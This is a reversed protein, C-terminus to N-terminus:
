VDETVAEALPLRVVVAKSWGPEPEVHISGGARSTLDVALGLGRAVYRGRLIATTLKRPSRDQVRIEVRELGTIPDEDVAVELGVEDGDLSAEIANRVLNGVVDAFDSRFMRVRLPAGPPVAIRVDPVAAGRVEGAADAYTEALLRESVPLVCLDAVARGLARYADRNLAVSIAALEQALRRGRGRRMAGELRRLRGAAALLPGLAPDRHRLNLRVGSAAGIRVLERVYGDLRALAGREGYLRDAAWRAPEPDGDELADVVAPLVSAHHKLVEHRIASLIRAVDRWAGPEHALLAGLSAGSRRRGVVVLPSLAVVVAVAGGGWTALRIRRELEADLELAAEFDAGSSRHEFFRHLTARARWWRWASADASARRWLADPDGLAAARDRLVRAEEARGDRAYLQALRGVVDGRDPELRLSEEYLEIARELEGRDARIRAELDLARVFRPADARVAALEALAHEAAVPDGKECWAEARHFGLWAAEPVAEPRESSPPAALPPNGRVAGDLAVRAAVGHPGEPDLALVREWAAVSRPWDGIRREALAARAWLDPDSGNRSVARRYAEAAELDFRGAYGTSLLDGLKAPWAAVRPDLTEAQRIAAVAGVVNGSAERLDALTGWAVASRDQERVLAELAELAEATRGAAYAERSRRLREVQAPTLPLDGANALETARKAVWIRDAVDGLAVAGDLKPDSVLDWAEPTHGLALLRELVSSAVPVAGDAALDIPDRDLYESLVGKAELPDTEALARARLVLVDPRNPVLDALKEFSEAALVWLGHALQLRGLAEVADADYPLSAYAEEAEGWRGLAELVRGLDLKAQEWAPDERAVFRYRVVAAELDGSAELEAGETWIRRLHPALADVPDAWAGFALLLALASM